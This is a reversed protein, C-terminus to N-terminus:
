HSRSKYWVGLAALVISILWKWNVASFRAIGGLLRAAIPQEYHGPSIFVLDSDPDNPPPPVYRGRYWNRLRDIPPM